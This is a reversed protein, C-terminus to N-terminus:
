SLEERNKINFVVDLFEGCVLIHTINKSRLLDMSEAAEVNGLFLKNPLIEDIEASYLM